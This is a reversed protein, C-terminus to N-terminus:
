QLLHPHYDPLLFRDYLLYFRNIFHGSRGSGCHADPYRDGPHNEGPCEHSHLVAYIETDENKVKQDMLNRIWRIKVVIPRLYDANAVEPAPHIDLITQCTPKMQLPVYTADHVKYTGTLATQSFKKSTKSQIVGKFYLLLSWGRNTM